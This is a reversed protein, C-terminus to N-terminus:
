TIVVRRDLFTPPTTSRDAVPTEIGDVGLRVLHTGVPADEVTFTLTGTSATRAAAAVERDGIVLTARQHARVQPRVGLEITATGQGDRAVTLPLATTIRPVIVLPLRNTERRATEGPPQVLVSLAYTGSALAAPLNPVTFRVRDPEDGALAAVERDIDLLRSELRLARDAGGLNRGAVEVTDGLAAGPQEDPPRVTTIAPLSPELGTAVALGRTLVPLQARGEADSEILVVSARYAATVRYKSQLASWLRSLEETSIAEPTVKILEVQRGLHSTALSPPLRQEIAERTLVPTEHLLQMGYGLLVETQLEEPGYATLLYHLDLALPPSTARNGRPDRSPLDANRWGSNSSVLYLFLNLRPGANAGTLPVMDPAVATVSASAGNLAANADQDELWAELLGRLVTTVGALALANSV